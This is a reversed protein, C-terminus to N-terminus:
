GCGCCGAEGRHRRAAQDGPEAADREHRIPDGDLRERVAARQGGPGTPSGCSWGCGSGTLRPTGAAECSQQVTDWMAMILPHADDIGLQRDSLKAPPATTPEAAGHSQPKAYRGDSRLPSRAPGRPNPYSAMLCRWLSSGRTWLGDAGRSPMGTPHGSQAAPLCWGGLDLDALRCWSPGGPSSSTGAASEPDILTRAHSVAQAHENFSDRLGDLIQDAARADLERHVQGLLVHEARGALDRRYGAVMQATAAAPLLKELTRADLTGDLAHTLIAREPSKAAGPRSLLDHAALPGTAGLHQIQAPVGGGLASVADCLRRCELLQTAKPM